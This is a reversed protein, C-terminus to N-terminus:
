KEKEKDKEADKESEELKKIIKRAEKLNKKRSIKIPKADEGELTKTIEEESVLDEGKRKGSEAAKRLVENLEEDTMKKPWFESQKWPREM